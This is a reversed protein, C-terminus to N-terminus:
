LSWYRTDERHLLIVTLESIRNMITRKQIIGKFKKDIYQFIELFYSTIHETEFM